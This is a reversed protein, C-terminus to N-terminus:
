KELNFIEEEMSWSYYKDWNWEAWTEEYSKRAMESLHSFKKMIFRMAKVLDEPRNDSSVVYGDEKHRVHQTLGPIERVIVPTANMFSVPIVGSQTVERDLRFVAYSERIVENIDSDNIIKKNIVKLIKRGSPTLKELYKTINSSSIIAFRYDLGESAVYNVLEIFTDHGTAKHAGGVISFFTRENEATVRQDPVLLPAVHTQGEFNPYRKRFLQASYGSPFIIHDMYRVTLGQIFEVMTIYTGKLIGYPKKNPKYPDHLYLATIAKPFKRKILRSITVNLPHPNYFCFFNTTNSSFLYMFKKGNILRITDLMAGILGDTETIHITGDCTGEVKSYRAHLLYRVNIGKKRINEGLVEFEKKLGPAFKLSIIHAAKETM